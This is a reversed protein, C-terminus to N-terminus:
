NGLVYGTICREDYDTKVFNQINSIKSIDDSNGKMSGCAANETSKFLYNFFYM